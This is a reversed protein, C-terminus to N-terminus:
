YMHFYRRFTHLLVDISRPHLRFCGYSCIPTLQLRMVLTHKQGLCHSGLFYFTGVRETSNPSVGIARIHFGRDQDTQGMVTVSYGVIYLSFIYTVARWCMNDSPIIIGEYILKYTDDIEVPIQTKDWRDNSPNDVNHFLIAQGLWGFVQELQLLYKFRVMRKRTQL